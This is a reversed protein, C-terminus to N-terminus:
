RAVSVFDVRIRVDDLQRLDLGDTSSARLMAAPFFLAYEGYLGRAALETSENERYSESNFTEPEINLKADVRARTWGPFQGVRPQESGQPSGALPDRFL